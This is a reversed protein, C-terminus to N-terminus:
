HVSEKFATAKVMGSERLERRKHLLALAIAVLVWIALYISEGIIPDLVGTMVLDSINLYSYYIGPVFTVWLGLYLLFRHTSRNISGLFFGVLYLTGISFPLMIMKARKEEFQQLRTRGAMIAGPSIEEGDSRLRSIAQFVQLLDSTSPENSFLEHEESRQFSAGEGTMIVDWLLAMSERQNIPSIFAIWVFSIGAIMLAPLIPLRIPDIKKHSYYSASMGLFGILLAMTAMSLSMRSYLEVLIPIPLEKDIPDVAYKEHFRLGGVLLVVGFFVTFVMAASLAPNMKVM